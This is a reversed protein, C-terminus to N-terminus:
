LLGLRFDSKGLCTVVVAEAQSHQAIFCRADSMSLLAHSSDISMAIANKAGISLPSINRYAKVDCFFARALM